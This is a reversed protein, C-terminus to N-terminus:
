SGGSAAYALAELARGHALEPAPEPAIESGGLAASQYPALLRRSGVRLISM